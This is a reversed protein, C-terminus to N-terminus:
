TEEDRGWQLFERVLEQQPWSPNGTIELESDGRRARVTARPNRESWSPIATCLVEAVPQAYVPGLVVLATLAEASGKAGTGADDARRASARRVDVGWADLGDAEVLAREFDRVLRETRVPDGGADLSLELEGRM